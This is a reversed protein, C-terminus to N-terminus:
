RFLFNYVRGYFAYQKELHLVRSMIKSVFLPYDTIITQKIPFEGKYRSSNQYEIAYKSEYKKLVKIYKIYITTLPKKLYMQGWKGKEYPMYLYKNLARLRHFHYFVLPNGDVYFKGKKTTIESNDVNFGALNVGKNECIYVKDSLTSFYDLYRQDAFRSKEEDVKDYCWEICKERWWDLVKLGEEDRKFTNFVVNYKGHVELWKNKESFHHSVVVISNDKMEKFIEAPSEYFYIDADLYTIMDVFEFKDLVYRTICPTMTFYYEVKSRTEKIDFLKKDHEELESLKIPVVCDTYNQCFFDFVFDDLALVFLKFEVKQKKLSHILALARSLYNKDFYLTFYYM